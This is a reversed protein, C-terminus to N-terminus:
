LKLHRLFGGIGDEDLGMNSKKEGEGGMGYAGGFGAEEGGLSV